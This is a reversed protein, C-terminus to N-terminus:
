KKRWNYLILYSNKLVWDTCIFCRENKYLDKTCVLEEFCGTTKYNVSIFTGTLKKKQIMIKCLNIQCSTCFNNVSKCECKDANWTATRQKCAMEFVSGCDGKPVWTLVIQTHSKQSM